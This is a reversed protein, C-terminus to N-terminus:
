WKDRREFGEKEDCTALDVIGSWLFDLFPLLAEVSAPATILVVQMGM